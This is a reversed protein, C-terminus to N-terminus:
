FVDNSISIEDDFYMRKDKFPIISWRPWVPLDTKSDLNSQSDSNGNPNGFHIFNKFYQSMKIRLRERSERNEENWAFNSFNKEKTTFNGLYFIADLGHLAGLASDWPSPLRDWNFHYRYLNNNYIKLANLVNDQTKHMALNGTAIFAKYATENVKIIDEFKLNPNPNLMENFLEEVSLKSFSLIGVASFEDKTAGIIMPVHNYKGLAVDFWGGKPLVTGDSYHQFPVIGTEAKAIMEAPVLQLFAQIWANSKDKLFEEGNQAYGMQEILKYLVLNAKASGVATPYTNPLGASCIAKHFLDKALPSQILGWVNMCGASQGAITINEPDAGLAAANKKIWKLSEILDLTVFNGSSDLANETQLAPHYFAGFHGLRYNVSVFLADNNQAFYAGHYNPDSSTGKYNSGGHIWFFIPKKETMTKKPTWINLYLCDESGVVKGLQATDNVSFMNGIQLCTPKFTKANLGFLRKEVPRPAKFRLPGIPAKAYPIGKYSVTDYLDNHGIIKGETSQFFDVAWVQCHSLLFTITILFLKKM